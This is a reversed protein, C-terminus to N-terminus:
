KKVHWKYIPKWEEIVGKKTYFAFNYRLADIIKHLRNKIRCIEDDDNFIINVSELLGDFRMENIHCLEIANKAGEKLYKNHRKLMDRGNKMFEKEIREQDILLNKM